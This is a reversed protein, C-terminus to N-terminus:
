ASCQDSSKEFSTDTTNFDPYSHVVYQSFDHKKRVARNAIRHFEPYVQVPMARFVTIAKLGQVMFFAM